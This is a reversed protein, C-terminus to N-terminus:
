TSEPGGSRGRGAGDRHFLSMTILVIFLCKGASTAFHALRKKLPPNENREYLKRELANMLQIRVRGYLFRIKNRIAMLYLYETLLPTLRRGGLQVPVVTTPEQSGRRTWRVGHIDVFSV